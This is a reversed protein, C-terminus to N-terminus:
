SKAEEYKDCETIMSKVDLKDCETIMSKVDLEWLRGINM